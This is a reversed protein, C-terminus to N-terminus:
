SIKRGEPIAPLHCASELSNGPLAQTEAISAIGEVICERAASRKDANWSGKSRREFVIKTRVDEVTELLKLRGTDALHRDVAGIKGRFISYVPVGLAAAERNMTGGGSIVLDSFWILNLGDVARDPIIIRRNAIWEPWRKRLAAEQRENRPLLVMTVDPKATLLDLAADLLADAEPNHYHAEDAPPRVTVILGSDSLGLQEKLKSDPELRGIYVDEKIGPYRLVQKKADVKVSSMFVQPVFAWDPHLFDMVSAFEYDFISIRPIGALLAALTQARSGHSVAVDPRERLAVSLLQAARFCTGAVKLIRSKGWHRGMVKCSLAHFELLRCVHYSDRATLVVRFGRARLEEIIPLFFPVHPTNDLDIWITKPKVSSGAPPRQAGFCYLAFIVLSNCFQLESNMHLQAAV